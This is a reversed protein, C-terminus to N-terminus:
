RRRARVRRHELSPIERMWTDFDDLLRSAAEALARVSSPGVETYAGAGNATTKVTVVDEMRRNSHNMFPKRGRAAHVTAFRAVALTSRHRKAQQHLKVRGRAANIGPENGEVSM